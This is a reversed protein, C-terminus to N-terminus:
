ISVTITECQTRNQAGIKRLAVMVAANDLMPMEESSESGDMVLLGGGTEEWDLMARPSTLLFTALCALLM